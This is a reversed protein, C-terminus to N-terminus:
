LTCDANSSKTDKWFKNSEWCMLVGMIFSHVPTVTCLQWISFTTRMNMCRFHNPRSTIPCIDSLVELAKWDLMELSIYFYFSLDYKYSSNRM